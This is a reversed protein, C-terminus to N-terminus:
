NCQKLSFLIIALICFIFFLYDKASMHLFWNEESSYKKIKDASDIKVKRECEEAISLKNKIALLSDYNNAQLTEILIQLTLMKSEPITKELDVIVGFQKFSLICVWNKATKKIKIEDDYNLNFSYDYVKQNYGDVREKESFEEIEIIEGNCNSFLIKNLRLTTLDRLEIIFFTNNYEKSFYVRVIIEPINDDAKIGSDLIDKDYLNIFSIYRLAKGNVGWKASEGSIDDLIESKLKIASM